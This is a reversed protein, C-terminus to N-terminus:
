LKRWENEPDLGHALYWRRVFCKAAVDKQMQCSPSFVMEMLMILKERDTNSITM